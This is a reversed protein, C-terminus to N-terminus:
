ILSPSNLLLFLVVIPEMFYSVVDVVGNINGLFCKLKGKGYTVALSDITRYCAYLFFREDQALYM